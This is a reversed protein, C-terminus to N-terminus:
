RGGAAAKRKREEVAVSLKRKIETSFMVPGLLGSAQKLKDIAEFALILAAEEAEKMDARAAKNDKKVQYYNKLAKVAEKQEDSLAADVGPLEALDEAEPSSPRPLKSLSM